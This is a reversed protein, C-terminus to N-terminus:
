ASCKEYETGLAKPWVDGHVCAVLPKYICLDMDVCKLLM